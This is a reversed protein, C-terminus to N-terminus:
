PNKDKVCSIKEKFVANFKGKSIEVNHSLREQERHLIQLVKKKLAVFSHFPLIPLSLPRPLINTCHSMLDDQEQQSLNMSCGSSSPRQVGGTDVEGTPVEVMQLPGGIVTWDAEEKNQWRTGHREELKPPHGKGLGQQGAAHM